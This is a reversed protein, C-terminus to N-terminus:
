EKGQYGAAQALERWRQVYRAYPNPWPVIKSKLPEPMKTMNVFEGGRMLDRRETTLLVLDAHKVIAPMEIPLGYRRMYSEHALRKLAKLDPLLRLLPSGPDFGLLAEDGEHNIGVFQDLASGGLLAICDAVRVSHESVTYYPDTRAGFRHIGSLVYATEELCIADHNWEPVRLQRGLYTQLWVDTPRGTGNIHPVGDVIKEVVGITRAPIAPVAEGRILKGDSDLTISDAYYQLGQYDIIARTKPRDPTHSPRDSMHVLGQRLKEGDSVGITQPQASLNASAACQGHAMNQSDIRVAIEGARIPLKCKVCNL